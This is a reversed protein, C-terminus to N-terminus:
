EQDGIQNKVRDYRLPYGEGRKSQFFIGKGRVVIGGLEATTGIMSVAILSLALYLYISFFHGQTLCYTRLAAYGIVFLATLVAMNQHNLVDPDAPAYFEKAYFGTIATPILLLAA